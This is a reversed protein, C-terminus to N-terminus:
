VAYRRHSDGNATHIRGLLQEAAEVGGAAVAGEVSLQLPEDIEVQEDDVGQAPPRQAALLGVVQMLKDAAAM